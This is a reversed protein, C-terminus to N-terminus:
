SSAEQNLAALTAAAAQQEAQRRSKGRGSFSEILLSVHCRVTFLQDHEQGEIAEIDYRPLAVGRAQMAEQLQTKADKAQVAHLRGSFLRELCRECAAMGGDLYIAGIVAEMADCLISSRERGGSKREGTGLYILEGLGLGRALDALVERSVLTARMRSLEGESYDPFLQFLRSAIIFGLAADGLFELRENHERSASRHTLARTLWDPDAFEHGLRQQLQALAQPPFAKSSPKM